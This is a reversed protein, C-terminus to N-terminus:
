CAEEGCDLAEGTLKLFADELDRAGSQRLLEPVTGMAVLKGHSMMAVRHCLRQAEPMDHTTLVVTTGQTQNVRAVFEQVQRRSAPDLGTTPEDLFLLEPRAVLARIVAVKQQMGRSLNELEEHLKEPALGLGAASEAVREQAQATTLGYLRCACILNEWASLKGFFAAEVSVRHIRKRIAASERVVDHGLVSAQGEDPLLLTCLIRILTSKGSGNSGLLGFIEGPAVELSVGTCAVSRHKEFRFRGSSKWRHFYKTVNDCIIASM